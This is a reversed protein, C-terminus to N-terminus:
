THWAGVIPPTWYLLEEEWHNPVRVNCPHRNQYVEHKAFNCEFNNHLVPQTRWRCRRWLYGGSNDGSALCVVTWLMVGDGVTLIMIIYLSMGRTIMAILYHQTLLRYLHKDIYLYGLFKVTPVSAPWIHTILIILINIWYFFAHQFEIYYSKLGRSILSTLVKM